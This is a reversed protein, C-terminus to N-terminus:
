RRPASDSVALQRAVRAAASVYSSDGHILVLAVCGEMLLVTQRALEEANRADLDQLKAVLWDEVAAKHRHAARRAPHGPLDALEMTLRTFGSGLWNPKATWRELQEFLSALFDAPTRASRVGWGKIQALARLHQRDLVAAALDDKSQFHYYITRKTVGAAAAIADVSVRAFGERYILRYAASLIRSKTDARPNGMPANIGVLSHFSHGADGVDQLRLM